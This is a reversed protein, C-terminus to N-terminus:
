EFDCVALFHCLKTFNQRAFPGPCPYVVINVRKKVARVNAYVLYPILTQYPLNLAEFHQILDARNPFCVGKPLYIVSMETETFGKWYRDVMDRYHFGM